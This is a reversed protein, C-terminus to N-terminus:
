IQIFEAKGGLQSCVLEKQMRDRSQAFSELQSAAKIITVTKDASWLM